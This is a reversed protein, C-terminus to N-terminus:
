LQCYKQYDRAMEHVLNINVCQMPGANQVSLGGTINGYKLCDEMPLGQLHAYLFGANFSDGAGTTDRVEVQIPPVVWRETGKRAIVGKGGRKIMVAPVIEALVDLARFVDSEGTFALAECENPAFFDVGQLAQIMSPTHISLTTHQCDMFLSFKRRNPLQNIMEVSMWDDIGPSLFCRFDLQSLEDFTRKQYPADEYSVFGRDHEFSFSAAVYRRPEDFHRALTTPIGAQQAERLVFQSFIDNGFDTMWGVDLGLRHLIQVIYYTGGPVMQFQKSYIDAGTRPMEPLGTFVMDCFYSGAVIIDYPKHSAESMMIEM